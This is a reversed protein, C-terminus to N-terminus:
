SSNFFLSLQVKNKLKNQHLDACEKFQGPAFYSARRVFNIFETSWVAAVVKAKEKTYIRRRHYQWFLSVWHASCLLRTYLALYRLCCKGKGRLYM